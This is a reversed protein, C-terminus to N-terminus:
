KVDGDLGMELSSGHVDYGFGMKLQAHLAHLRLM